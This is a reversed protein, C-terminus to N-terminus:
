PNKSELLFSIPHIKEVVVKGEYTGDPIDVQATGITRGFEDSQTGGILYEESAVRLQMGSKLKKEGDTVVFAKDSRVVVRADATTELTGVFSWVLIGALLLIVAALVAWIGPGTVKLYDTLQEPSSIRDITKQRFVSQNNNETGTETSNEMNSEMNSNEM